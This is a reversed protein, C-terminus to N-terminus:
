PLDAFLGSSEADAIEKDRFTQAIVSIADSRFGVYVSAAKEPDLGLHAAGAVGLTLRLDKPVVIRRYRYEFLLISELDHEEALKRRRQLVPESNCDWDM